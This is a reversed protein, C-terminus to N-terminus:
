AEWEIHRHIEDTAALEFRRPEGSWGCACRPVYHHAANVYNAAAHGFVEVVTNGDCRRCRVEDFPDASLQTYGRGDCTPCVIVTSPEIVDAAEVLTGKTLHGGRSTM